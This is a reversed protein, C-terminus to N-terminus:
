KILLKEKLRHIDDHNLLLAQSVFNDFSGFLQDIERQATELYSERVGMFDQITQLDHDTLDKFTSYYEITKDIRPRSLENTKMYDEMIDEDSVGLIKLIFYAALGTRDKGASCHFYLPTEDELLLNFFAQYEKHAFESQIINRYLDEMLDSAKQDTPLNILAHPDASLKTKNGGMINLHEYQFGEKIDPRKEIEPFDRFDVVTKLQITSRLYDLTEDDLDHLPGGRFLTGPKVRGDPTQKNGIDRFNLIKNHM